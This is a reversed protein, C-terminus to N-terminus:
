DQGWVISVDVYVQDGPAPLTFEVTSTRVLHASYPDPSDYLPVEIRYKGAPAVFQAHCACGEPTTDFTYGHGAWFDSHSVGPGVAYMSQMCPSCVICGGTTDACDITCSAEIALPTQYDDACTKVDYRLRCEELLYSNAAGNNTFVFSVPYPGPHDTEVACQEPV